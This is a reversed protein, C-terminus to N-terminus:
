ENSENEAIRLAELFAPLAEEAFARNQEAYEKYGRRM